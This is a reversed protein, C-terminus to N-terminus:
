SETRRRLLMWLQVGAILSFTVVSIWRALSWDRVPDGFLWPGAASALSSLALLLAVRQPGDPKVGRSAFRAVALAQVALALAFAFRIASLFPAGRIAPYAAFMGAVSALSVAVATIWADFGARPSWKSEDSGALASWM